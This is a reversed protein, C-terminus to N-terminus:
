ESVRGRGRVGNARSRGGGIERARSGKARTRSLSLSPPTQDDIREIERETNYLWWAAADISSSSSRILYRFSRARSLAVFGVLEDSEVVVIDDDEDVVVGVVGVVLVLVTCSCEVSFSISSRSSSNVMSSSVMTSTCPREDLSALVGAVVAAVAAAVVASGGSADVVLVSTDDIVLLVGTDDFM